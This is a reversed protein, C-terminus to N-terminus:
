HIAGPEPMGTQDAAAGIGERSQSSKYADLADRTIARLEDDTLAEFDGPGGVEKREVLLASLKARLTVAAVYGTPNKVELALAMATECEKMADDRTYGIKQIEKVSARTVREAIESLIAEIRGKIRPECRMKRSNQPNNGSYGAQVYAEAITQGSAVLQCFREHKPNGLPKKSM